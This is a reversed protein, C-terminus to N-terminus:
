QNPIIIEIWAGRSPPRSSIHLYASSGASKLGRGGRPPAVACVTRMGALNHMEIWAGRSPPRSSSM